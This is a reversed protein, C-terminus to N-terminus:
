LLLQRVGCSCDPVRLVEWDASIKKVAQVDLTNSYFVRLIHSFSKAILVSNPLFFDTNLCSFEPRKHSLM